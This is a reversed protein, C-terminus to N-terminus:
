HKFIRILDSSLVATFDKPDGLHHSDTLQNNFRESYYEGGPTYNLYHIKSNYRATSYFVNLINNRDKQMKVYELMEPATYLFLEINNSKCINIISYYDKLLRPNIGANHDPFLMEFQNINFINKSQPGHVNRDIELTVKKDYSNTLYYILRKCYLRYLEPYNFSEKFLSMDHILLDGILSPHFSTRTQNFSFWSVELLLYDPTKNQDLYSELILKITSLSAGIYGLHLSKKSTNTELINLDISTLSKSNGMVLLEPRDNNLFAKIYDGRSFNESDRVPFIIANFNILKPILLSISVTFVLILFFFSLKTFFKNM